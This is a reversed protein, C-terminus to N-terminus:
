AGGEAGPQPAAALPLWLVQAESGRLEFVGGIPVWGVEILKTIRDHWESMTDGDCRRCTAYRSQSPFSKDM